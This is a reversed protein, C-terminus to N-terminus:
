KAVSAFMSVNHFQLTAIFVLKSGRWKGVYPEPYQKKFNDYTRADVLPRLTLRLITKFITM